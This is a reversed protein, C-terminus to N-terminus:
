LTGRGFNSIDDNVGKIMKNQTVKCRCALDHTPVRVDGDLGAYGKLVTIM